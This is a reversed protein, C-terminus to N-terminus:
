EVLCILFNFSWLNHHAQSDSNILCSKDIFDIFLPITLCFLELIKTPHLETRTRVSQDKLEESSYILMHKSFYVFQFLFM